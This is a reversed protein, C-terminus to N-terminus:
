RQQAARYRVHRGRGCREWLGLRNMLPLVKRWENDSLVSEERIEEPTMEGNQQLLERLRVTALQVPNLLERPVSVWTEEPRHVHTRVKSLFWDPLDDVDILGNPSVVLGNEIVNELERVNGPWEYLYFLGMAQATVGAACHRGLHRTLAYGVLQPLDTMRERLPPIDIQIIRLRYLLDRRFRGREVEDSLDRNTAAIIRAGIPISQNSGVPRVSGEELVRLLKAQLGLPMEGIEDLLLTGQGLFPLLGVRTTVADTFAGREHGLLETELLTEPIAALSIAVYREDRRRSREHILHAYLEKGCGSPAQILVHSDCQAAANALSNVRLLSPHTGVIERGEWELRVSAAHPSAFDLGMGGRVTALVYWFGLGRLALPLRPDSLTRFAGDPNM